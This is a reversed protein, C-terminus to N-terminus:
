LLMCATYFIFGINLAHRQGEHMFFGGLSMMGHKSTEGSLREGYESRIRVTVHPTVAAATPGTETPPYHPHHIGNSYDDDDTVVEFRELASGTIVLDCSQLLVIGPWCAITIPMLLYQRLAMSARINDGPTQIVSFLVGDNLHQYAHQLLLIGIAIPVIM